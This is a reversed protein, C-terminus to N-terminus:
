SSAICCAQSAASPEPRASRHLWLDRCRGWEGIPGICQDIGRPESVLLRPERADPCKETKRMVDGLVAIPKARRDRRARDKHLAEALLQAPELVAAGM